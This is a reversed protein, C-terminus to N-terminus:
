FKSLKYECKEWCSQRMLLNINLIKNIPYNFCGREKPVPSYILNLTRLLFIHLGRTCSAANNYHQEQQASPNKSGGPPTTLIWQVLVSWGWQIQATGTLESREDTQVFLAKDPHAWSKEGLPDLHWSLLIRHMPFFPHLLTKRGKERFKGWFYKEPPATGASCSQSFGIGGEYITLASVNQYSPKLYSWRIENIRIKRVNKIALM